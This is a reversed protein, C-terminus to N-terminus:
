LYPKISHSIQDLIRAKKYNAFWSIIWSPLAEKQKWNTVSAYSMDVMLAFEKKSLDVRELEKEFEEYNM